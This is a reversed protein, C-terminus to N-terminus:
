SSRPCRSAPGVLGRGGEARPPSGESRPVTGPQRAASRSSFPYEAPHAVSARSAYMLIVPAIVAVALVNTFTTTALWASLFITAYGFGLLGASGIRGRAARLSLRGFVFGLVSTFLLGFALGFDMLIGRFATYVNSTRGTDDIESFEESARTASRDQGTIYEMGAVTATGLGLRQSADYGDLWTSFAGIPGVTYVIQKEVSLQVTEADFRGIRLAGIGVFIVGVLLASTLVLIFSRLRFRPLTGRRQISAAILGGATLAFCILFGLRASSVSAYLLSTVAPLLLVAAGHKATTLTIFPAVLAAVYGIGLLLPVAAGTAGTSYRVIAMTNASDALGQLTLVDEISISSSRLALLAAGINAAGGIVAVVVIVRASVERRVRPTEIAARATRSPLRATAVVTGTTFALVFGFVTAIAVGNLASKPHFILTLAIAIAWYSLFVWRPKM